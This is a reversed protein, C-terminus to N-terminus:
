AGSSMAFERAIGEFKSSFVGPEYDLFRELDTGRKGVLQALFLAPVNAGALHSFPYGGGFRPNVDLVYQTGDATVMVDLDALGSHQLWSYISNSMAMFDATGVTVAQDTEGDRMALKQRVLVGVKHSGAVIPAVIDVGYETGDIEPQVILLAHAGYGNGQGERAVRCLAKEVESEWDQASFRVLGSSGSGFRDKIIFNQARRRIKDVEDPQSLLATPATMIGEARLAKFMRFKDHVLSHREKGLGLVVTGLARVREQIGSTALLGLELDNVTFFLNPKLTHCLRLFEVGYSRDQLQPLLHSFRASSFTASHPKTETIHVEGRMGLDILAQEFWERLYMRRDASGILIKFVQNDAM